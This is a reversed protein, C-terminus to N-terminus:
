STQKRWLYRQWLVSTDQAVLILEKIGQEALQKAEEILSEMTRSRYAGRLYPIVCYTCRSDCGEAIKLYAFHGATTVIRNVSNQEDKM